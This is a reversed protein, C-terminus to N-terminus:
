KNVVKRISGDKMRVINLGRGLAQQKIGNATYVEGVAKMSEASLIGTAENGFWFTLVPANTGTELWARFPKIAPENGASVQYFAVGTGDLNQLVYSGASVSGATYTGHLLGSVPAAEYAVTGDKATLTLTGTGKLLVPQNAEITTVQSGQIRDSGDVSTLQWAEVDGTVDAEFPVVVTGFGAAGVTATYTLGTGAAAISAVLSEIDSTVSALDLSATAGSVPELVWNNGKDTEHASYAKVLSVSTDVQPNAHESSEGLLFTVNSTGIVDRNDINLEVKVEAPTTKSLTWNGTSPTVFYGDKNYIYYYGQKGSVPLLSFEGKDAETNTTLLNGEASPVEAMYRNQKTNLHQLRYVSEPDIGFIATNEGAEEILWQSGGSYNKVDGDNQDNAYANAEGGATSSISFYSGNDTIVTKDAATASATWATGNNANGSPVVYQHSVVDYLYFQGEAGAVSRIIFQAAESQSATRHLNADGATNYKPSRWYLKSYNGTTNWKIRYLKALDFSLPEVEEEVIDGEGTGFYKLTWNDFCVWTANTTSAIDLGFEISGEDTLTLELMYETCEDKGTSVTQSVPSGTLTSGSAYMTVGTAAGGNNTALVKARLRYRGAPMNALTQSAKNAVGLGGAKYTEIFNDEFGYRNSTNLKWGPSANADLRTMSWESLDDCTGNPITISMGNTPSANAYKFTNMATSLAAQQSELTSINYCAVVATANGIATNLETKGNTLSADNYLTTAEDIVTQLAQQAANIATLPINETQVLTEGNYFRVQIATYGSAAAADKTLTVTETGYAAL